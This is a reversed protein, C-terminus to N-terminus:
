PSRTPTRSNPPEISRLLRIEPSPQIEEFRHLAREALAGIVAVAEGPEFYDGNMSIGLIERLAHATDSEAALDVEALMTSLSEM